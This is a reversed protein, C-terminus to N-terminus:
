SIHNGELSLPMTKTIKVDIINGVLGEKDSFIKISKNHRSRGLYYGKYKEFVLVPITEDIYVKNREKGIDILVQTLEKHRRKKDAKNVDDPINEYCHSEPRPSYRAIFAMDFGAEKFLKVTNQFQEETEGPFGVIIDTSISIEKDLGERKKAFAKRIRKVLDLYKDSTYPRNMRRLITDDGSQAPLNLYPAFKKSSALADILNDPFDKPHPSTFRLWFDGEISDIKRILSAFDVSEDKPSAYSNVNEGLLWIEKYGQLALFKVEAVIDEHNRCILRGRTYPVACYTCFNDCGNSIPVSGQFTSSRKPTIRLYDHIEQEPDDGAILQPWIELDDKKLVYDFIREFKYRDAELFCGTLILKTGRKKKLETFNKSIGFIRDVASQRVSCMNAIIIDAEGAIETPSYGMSEFMTAIRESDSINMQCGFTIIHYKKM